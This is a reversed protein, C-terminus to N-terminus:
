LARASFTDCGKVSGGKLGTNFWRFNAERRPDTAMKVESTDAALYLFPLRFM